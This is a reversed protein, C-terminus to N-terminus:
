FGEELLNKSDGDENHFSLNHQAARTCPPKQRLGCFKLTGRGAYCKFRCGGTECGYGRGGGEGGPKIKLNIEKQKALVQNEADTGRKVYFM